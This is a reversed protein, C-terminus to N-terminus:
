TLPSIAKTLTGKCWFFGGPPAQITMNVQVTINCSALSPQSSYCVWPFDAGTYLPVETLNQLQPSTPSSLNFPTSLLVATLLPCGLAACLFCNSANGISTNNLLTIGARIVTLWSFPHASKTPSPVQKQLSTEQEIITDTMDGLAQITVPLIRIDAQYIQIGGM